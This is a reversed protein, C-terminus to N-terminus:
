EILWCLADITYEHRDEEDAGIYRPGGVLRVALYGPPSQEKLIEQVQLADAEATQADERPGRVRVRYRNSQETEDSKFTRQPDRLQGDAWVIAARDDQADHLGGRYVSGAYGNAELLDTITESHRTTV